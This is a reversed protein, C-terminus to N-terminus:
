GVLLGVFLEGKIIDKGILSYNMIILGMMFYAKIIEVFYYKDKYEESLMGYVPAV